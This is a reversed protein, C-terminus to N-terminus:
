VRTAVRDWRHPRMRAQRDRTGDRARDQWPAPSRDHPRSAAAPRRPVKFLEAGGRLFAAIGVGRDGREFARDADIRREGGRVGIQSGREGIRAIAFGRAAGIRARDFEVGGIRARPQARTERFQRDKVVAGLLDVDRAVIVGDREIAQDRRAVRLIGCEGGRDSLVM